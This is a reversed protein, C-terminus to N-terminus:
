AAERLYMRALPQSVPQPQGFLRCKLWRSASSPRYLQHDPLAMGAPDGGCVSVCAHAHAAWVEPTQEIVAGGVRDALDNRKSATKWLWGWAHRQRWVVESVVGLWTRRTLVQM